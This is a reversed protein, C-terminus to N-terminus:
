TTVCAAKEQLSCLTLLARLLWCCGARPLLVSRLHAVHEMGDNCEITDAAGNSCKLNSGLLTSYKSSLPKSCTQTGADLPALHTIYSLDAEHM